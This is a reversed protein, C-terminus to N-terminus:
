EAYIIKINSNKNKFYEDYERLIRRDGQKTTIIEVEQSFDLFSEGQNLGFKSPDAVIISRKANKLISEKTSVEAEQKVTFGASQHIGSTGIFAIDAGGFARLIDHFGNFVDVGVSDDDVIAWSNLRVRGGVVYIKLRQDGDRMGMEMAVKSLEEVVKFFNTVVVINQFAHSRIGEAIYHAIHLATSGADLAVVDGSRIFEVAKRAILDKDDVAFTSKWSFHGEEIFVKDGRRVIGPLRNQTFIIDLDREFEARDIKSKDFEDKSDERWLSYLDDISIPDVEQYPQAVRIIGSAVRKIFDEAENIVVASVVEISKKNLNDREKKKFRKEYILGGIGICGASLVLAITEPVSERLIGLLSEM